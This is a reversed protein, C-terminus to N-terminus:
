IGVCGHKCKCVYESVNSFVWVYMSANVCAQVCLQIAVYVHKCKCVYNFVCVDMNVNVCVHVCM